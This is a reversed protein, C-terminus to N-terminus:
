LKKIVPHFTKTTLLIRDGIKLSNVEDKSATIKTVSTNILVTLIYYNQNTEINLIEAILQIESNTKETSFIEMPLGSNIIKGKDIEYVVESLKCVENLDHSVLLTTFNFNTHAEKLENQLIARTKYDMASLPEDLLLIDPKHALARALGLRQKQGGSLQHPKCKCFGYLNFIELLKKIYEKDQKPQAFLLHELVNMNPFLAYDQFVYGINRKQTPLNIKQKKDFWNQNCAKIFGDDPMTLGAIMRLLTTKGAGSKGFITVFGKEPIQLEIDLMEPGENTHMKKQLHLDILIKEM